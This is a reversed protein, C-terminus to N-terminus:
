RISQEVEARAHDKSTTTMAWAFERSFLKLSNMYVKRASDVNDKDLAGRLEDNEAALIPTQKTAQYFPSYTRDGTPTRFPLNCGCVFVSM